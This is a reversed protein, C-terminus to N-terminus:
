CTAPPPASSGAQSPPAPSREGKIARFCLIVCALNFLLLAITCINDSDIMAVAIKEVSADRQLSNKHIIDSLDNQSTTTQKGPEITESKSKELLSTERSAFLKIIAIQHNLCYVNSFHIASITALNVVLLIYLIKM